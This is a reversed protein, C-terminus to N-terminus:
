GRMLRRVALQQESVLCSRAMCGTRRHSTGRARARPFRSGVPRGDAALQTLKVDDEAPGRVRCPVRPNRPSRSRPPEVWSLGLAAAHSRLTGVDRRMLEAAAVRTMGVAALKMLEDCDGTTWARRPRRPRGIRQGLTWAKEQVGACSRGLRAAIELGTARSRALQVLLAVETTSWKQGQPPSVTAVRHDADVWGTSSRFWVLGRWLDPAGTARAGRTPRSVVTTAVLLVQGDQRRSLWPKFM